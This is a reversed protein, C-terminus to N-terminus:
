LWTRPPTQQLTSTATADWRASLVRMQSTFIYSPNESAKWSGYSASQTNGMSTPTITVPFCIMFGRM